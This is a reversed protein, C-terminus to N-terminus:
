ALEPLILGYKGNKRRYVVNVAKDDASAFIFFDHGIFEMQDIAQEVTMQKIFFRKTRLTDAEDSEPAKEDGEVAQTRISETVRGKNVEYKKKYKTILREMTEVVEDIAAKISEDKHEGRILFGNINLTVQATYVHQRSKSKEETLEIKTASIAALYKSLKGLKKDAYEKIDEDTKMNKFLIQTEM